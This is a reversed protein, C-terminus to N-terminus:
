MMFFGEFDGYVLDCDMINDISLSYMHCVLIFYQKSM